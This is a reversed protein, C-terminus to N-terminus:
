GKRVEYFINKTIVSFGNSNIDYLMSEPAMIKRCEMRKAINSNVNFIYMCEEHPIYINGKKFCINAFNIGNVYRSIDLEISEGSMTIVLAAGMNTVVLWSKTANDYIIRYKVQKAIEASSYTFTWFKESNCYLEDVNETAQKILIFKSNFKVDFCKIKQNGVSITEDVVDGNPQVTRKFIVPIGKSIGDFYISTDNVVVNMAGDTREHLNVANNELDVVFFENENYIVTLRKGDDSLVCDKLGHLGALNINEQTDQLNNKKLIAVYRGNGKDCIAARPNLVEVVKGDFPKVETAIFKPNIRYETKNKKFLTHYQKKLLPVISERYSGEFINLFATKLEANMWDWSVAIAPPKMGHNGLLSIRLEMKDPIDLAVRQGNRNGYYIGNFPHTYTLYYFVQVAFSYWDDKMTITKNKKSVPDIYGDTCFEPTIEDVGMGDFDLFYVNKKTDFLINRGNLDGIYIALKHLDEIGEGVTIMIEFIDEKSLGLRQIETRDRLTSIPFANTIEDMLYGFIEGTEDALLKHPIVYKYKHKEKNVKELLAKKALIRFLVSSKFNKDVAGEKFVKAVAGKSEQYIFAEGGENMPQMAEYYARSTSVFERNQMEPTVCKPCYRYSGKYHMKHIKCNKNMASALDELRMKLGFLGELWPKPGIEITPDSDLIKYIYDSTWQETKINEMRTCPSIFDINIIQVQGKHSRNLFVHTFPNEIFGYGNSTIEMVQSILRILSKLRALNRLNEGDELDVCVDSSNGGSVEFNTAEYVYGLFEKNNDLAKKCPLFCDQFFRVASGSGIMRMSILKSVNEKVKGKYEPKYIKLNYTSDIRYHVAVRDEFVKTLAEEFNQPVLYKTQACVPCFGKKSNYYIQHEDCYLDFSNALKLLYQKSVNNEGNPIKWGVFANPNYGIKVLHDFVSQVFTSSNYAMDCEEIQFDEDLYNIYFMFNEDMWINKGPIYYRSFKSFLYAAVKLLDRNNLSALKQATIQEGKVEELVYGVVNYMNNTNLKKAGVIMESIRAFKVHDDEISGLAAEMSLRIKKEREMFTAIKQSRKLTVVTRGDPLKEQTGKGLTVNYKNAVEYDFSMSLETPDYSFRPDYSFSGDKSVVRTELFKFLKETAMRYDVEKGLAFNVFENAVIPSLFRIETKELFQEKSTLEGYVKAMFNALLKFFTVTIQEELMNWDKKTLNFLDDIRNSKFIFKGRFNGTCVLCKEIEFDNSEAMTSLMALNYEALYQRLDQIYNFIENQCGFTANLVTQMDQDFRRTFKYGIINNDFDVIIGQMQETTAIGSDGVLEKDSLFEEYEPSIGQYIKLGEDYVTYENNEEIVRFESALREPIAVLSYNEYESNESDMLVMWISDPTAGTEYYNYCMRAVPSNYPINYGESIGRKNLGEYFEKISGGDSFVYHIYEIMCGKSKEIMEKDESQVFFSLFESISDCGTCEFKKSDLAFGRAQMNDVFAQTERVKQLKSANAWIITPIYRFSFWKVENNRSLGYGTVQLESLGPKDVSLGLNDIVEYLCKGVEADKVFVVYKFNRQNRYVEEKNDKKYVLSYFSEVFLYYFYSYIMKFINM